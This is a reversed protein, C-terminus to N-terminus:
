ALDWRGAGVEEWGVKVRGSGGCVREFFSRGEERM